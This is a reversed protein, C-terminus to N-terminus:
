AQQFCRIHLFVILSSTFITIRLADYRKHTYQNIQEIIEDAARLAWSKEQSSISIDTRSNLKDIVVSLILRPQDDFVASVPKLDFLNWLISVIESREINPDSLVDEISGAEYYRKDKRVVRIVIQRPEDSYEYQKKIKNDIRQLGAEDIIFREYTSVNIGSTLMYERLHDPDAITIAAKSDGGAIFSCFFVIFSYIIRM